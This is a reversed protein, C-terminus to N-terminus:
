QGCCPDLGAFADLLALIDFLDIAGDATCGAIDVSAPPCNVFRGAFGDLVCLIDQLDVTGDENVDGYPAPPFTCANDECRNYTCALGDDCDPIYLWWAPWCFGTNGCYEPGNCWDGDDCDADTTCPPCGDSALEAIADMWEDLEEDTLAPAQYNEGEADDNQCFVSRQGDNLISRLYDEPVYYGGSPRHCYAALIDANWAPDDLLGLYQLADRRTEYWKAECHEMAMWKEFLPLELYTIDVPLYNPKLALGSKLLDYVGDGDMGIGLSPFEIGGHGFWAILRSPVNQAHLVSYIFVPTLGSAGKKVLEACEFDTFQMYGIEACASEYSFGSGRHTWGDDRMRIITLDLLDKPSDIPHDPYLLRLSNGWAHPVLPNMNFLMYWWWYPSSSKESFADGLVVRLSEDDYDFLSWPVLENVEVYLSLAVKQLIVEGIEQDTHPVPHRYDDWSETQGTELQDIKMLLFDLYTGRQIYPNTEIADTVRPNSLLAGYPDGADVGGASVLIEIVVTISVKASLNAM